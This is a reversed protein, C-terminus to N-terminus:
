AAQNVNLCYPIKWAAKYRRIHSKPTNEGGHEGLVCLVKAEHVDERNPYVAHLPVELRHPFLDLRPLSRAKRICCRFQDDVPCEHLALEVGRFVQGPANVILVEVRLDFLESRSCHPAKDLANVLAKLSRSGIGCNL